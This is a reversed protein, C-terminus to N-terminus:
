STSASWGSFCQVASATQLTARFLCPRHQFLCPRHQRCIAKGPTPTRTKTATTATTTTTTQFRANARHGTASSLFLFVIVSLSSDFNLQKSFLLSPLLTYRCQMNVHLPIHWQINFHLPIVCKLDSACQLFPGASSTDAMGAVQPRKTACKARM